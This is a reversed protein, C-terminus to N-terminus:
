GRFVGVSGRNAIRRVRYTGAGSLVQPKLLGGIQHYAGADDKIEILVPAFDLVGSAGAGKLALTASEGDALTFDASNAATTGAALLETAM